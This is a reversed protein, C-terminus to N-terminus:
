NLSCKECLDPQEPSTRCFKSILQDGRYIFGCRDCDDSVQQITEGEHAFQCNDGYLCFGDASNRQKPCDKTKFVSSVLRTQLDKEEHTFLCKTYTCNEGNRCMIWKKPLLKLKNNTMQHKSADNNFKPKLKIPQMDDEGGDRDNAKKKDLDNENDKAQHYHVHIPFKPAYYTNATLPLSTSMGGNNGFFPNLPTMTMAQFLQQNYHQQMHQLQQIQTASPFPPVTYHIMPNPPFAPNNYYPHSHHYYNPSGYGQLPYFPQLHPSLGSPPPPSVYQSPPTQKEHHSM